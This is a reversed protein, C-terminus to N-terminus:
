SKFRRIDGATSVSVCRRRPLLCLLECFDVELHCIIGEGFFKIIIKFFGGFPPYGWFASQTYLHTKKLRCVLNLSLLTEWPLATM